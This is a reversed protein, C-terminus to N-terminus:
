PTREARAIETIETTGMAEAQRIADRMDSATVVRVAVFSVQYKVALRSASLPPTPKPRPIGPALRGSSPRVRGVSSGAAGRSGTATDQRRSTRTATDNRRGRAPQVKAALRATRSRAPWHELAEVIADQVLDEALAFDGFLRVLTGVLQGTEERFVDAFLGETPKSTV